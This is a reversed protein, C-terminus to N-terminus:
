KAERYSNLAEGVTVTKIKSDKIMKMYSEFDKPMVNYSDGDLDSKFNEDIQHFVLVLWGNNKRTFELAKRIQDVTTYPGVTYGIIDFRNFHKKLNVDYRDVGNKLDASVNRQSGYYERVASNTRDNYAGNPPAFSMNSEAVGLDVLIDRSDRIQSVLTKSDVDTLKLHTMTHSAIEHGTQSLHETQEASLYAPANFMGPLVYQTTAIDYKSLIPAAATYVSGWGDDFTVSVLPEKFLKPNDAQSVKALEILKRDDGKIVTAAWAGLSFVPAITLCVALSNLLLDKWSWKKRKAM